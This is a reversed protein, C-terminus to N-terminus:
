FRHKQTEQLIVATFPFGANKYIQTNAEGAVQHRYMLSYRPIKVPSAYV